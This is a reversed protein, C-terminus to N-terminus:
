LKYVVGASLILRNWGNVIKSKLEANFILQDTLKFDVGVGLNICLYSGTIPETGYDIKTGFIGLGALPYVAIKEAVPILYHGNVSLDWMSVFDKEIFYTFTGELRIPDIINYQFKAGIGINTYNNGSSKGTSLALNAGAAFDGKEQAHAALCITSAILAIAAKKLTKKMQKFNFHFLTVRKQQIENKLIFM